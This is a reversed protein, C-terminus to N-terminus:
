NCVQCFSLLGEERSSYGVMQQLFASFVMPHVYCWKSPSFQANTHCTLFLAMYLGGCSLPLSFHAISLRRWPYEGTKMQIGLSGSSWCRAAQMKRLPVLRGLTQSVSLWRMGWGRRRLEARLSAKGARERGQESRKRRSEVFIISRGGVFGASAGTPAYVTQSDSSVMRKHTYAIWSQEAQIRRQRTQAQRTHM